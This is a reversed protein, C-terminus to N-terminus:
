VVRLQSDAWRVFDESKPSGGMTRPAYWLRGPYLIDDRIGGGRFEIVPDKSCSDARWGYKGTDWWNLNSLDCERVLLCNLGGNRCIPIDTSHIEPAPSPPDEAILIGGRKRLESVLMEIDNQTALFNAQRGM